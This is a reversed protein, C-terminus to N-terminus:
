APVTLDRDELTKLLAHLHDAAAQVEAPKYWDPLNATDTRAIPAPGRVQVLNTVENPDNALDYMEWEVNTEDGPDFYRSLKATLTRVCRIHNPQCVPGDALSPVATIVGHTGTRVAQVTECYVEYADYYDPQTLRGHDAPETVEDDTIFLVGERVTGDPYTVPTAPNKLTPTLDVGPLPAMTHREALAAAANQLTQADVGTLGLVTPVLDAHSTVAEVHRLENGQDHLTTPFQVVMPVHVAEEYAVHWKELMMNHAAGLEGHDAVFLVITNDAQGTEELTQLVRNIQPDVQSHLWGYFQLFQISYQEPQASLQFPITFKLALDVAAGWRDKIPRPHEGPIIEDLLAKVADKAGSVAGHSSKASLALGIKYAADHQCSPKTALDEDWTPIGGACDQPFGGPNLPMTMTGQKPPPSMQGELPVDLPGFVPQTKDEEPAEDGEPIAPLAQSIVTPYTAIDHPNTFSVVAFWPRLAADTAQTGDGIRAEDESAGYNYPLALGRRRLFLCANDAFGPDRYVGLNNIAAGHPEPYSLEWDAFGFRELSHGRPNSIHWKGFYHTSYGVARMWHGMTPPGDAKLWPFKVANGDKFMGDTQTVGTRTGYQGTFMVARSPTCASSGITHNHLAVANNRLRTLGPFYQAYENDTLGATGRFGLIQKLPDALGNNPGYSFRPYRYQDVVIMLINPQTTETTKGM